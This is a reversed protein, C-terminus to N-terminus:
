ILGRDLMHHFRAQCMQDVEIGNVKDQRLPLTSISRLLKHLIEELTAIRMTNRYGKNHRTTICSAVVMCNIDAEGYQGHQRM